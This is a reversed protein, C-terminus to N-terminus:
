QARGTCALGGQQMGQRAHQAVVLIGVFRALQEDVATGHRFGAATRSEHLLVRVRLYHERANTVVHSKARFVEGHRPLFDPAAHTSRQLRHAQVQWEIM